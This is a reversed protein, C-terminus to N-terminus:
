PEEVSQVRINPKLLCERVEDGNALDNREARAIAAEWNDEIGAAIHRQAIRHLALAPAVDVFWTDDVYEPIQRWPDRDLLLWNGELIVIEIDPEIRIADAVPDKVAHDFSPALITTPKVDTRSASLTRLLAVVGDADFTWAAGRRAHAEIRNPLTDLHARTFHFGDMALCTAIPRQATTNIRQVVQAAITSKGSGPPGSLAIIIRRQGPISISNRHVNVARQALSLYVQEM